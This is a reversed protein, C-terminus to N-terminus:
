SAASPSFRQGPIVVELDEFRGLHKADFTAFSDVAHSRAWAVNYADILDVNKEVYDHLAELAVDLAPVDLGEMGVIALVREHVGSKPLRYHSETVWVLEALVMTNTMLQVEGRAAQQFLREAASAQDPVDNTLFRLFVNTDVFIPGSRVQGVPRAREGANPKDSMM